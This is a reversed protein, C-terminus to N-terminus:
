MESAHVSVYRYERTAIVKRASGLIDIIQKDEFMSMACISVSVDIIERDRSQCHRIVAHHIDRSGHVPYVSTSSLYSIERWVPM